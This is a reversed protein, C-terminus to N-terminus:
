EAANRKVEKINDKSLEPRTKVFDLMAKYSYDTKDEKGFAQSIAESIGPLGSLQQPFLRKNGFEVVYSGPHVENIIQAQLQTRIEHHDSKNETRNRDILHVIDDIEKNNRTTQEDMYVVKKNLKSMIYVCYIGIGVIWLLLFTLEMDRYSM